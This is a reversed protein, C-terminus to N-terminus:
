GEEAESDALAELPEAEIMGALAMGNHIRVLLDTQERAIVILEELLAEATVGGKGWRHGDWRWVAGTDSELFSSGYPVDTADLTRGSGLPDLDGPTPKRDSSTGIYRRITGELRYAM